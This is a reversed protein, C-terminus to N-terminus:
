RTASLTVLSTSEGGVPYKIPVGGYVLFPIIRRLLPSRDQTLIPNTSPLVDNELWAIENQLKPGVITLEGVVNNQSYGPQFRTDGAQERPLITLLIGLFGGLV